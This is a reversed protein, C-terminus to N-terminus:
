LQDPQQLDLHVSPAPLTLLAVPLPRVCNLQRLKFRQTAQASQSLEMSPRFDEDFHRGLRMILVAVDNPALEYSTVCQPMKRPM